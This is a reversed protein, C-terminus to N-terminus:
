EPHGSGVVVINSTHYCRLVADDLPFGVMFADVGRVLRSAATAFARRRCRLSRKDPPLGIAACLGIAIFLGMAALLGMDFALGIDLCLGSTTFLGATIRLGTALCLGALLLGAILFFSCVFMTSELESGGVIAVLGM